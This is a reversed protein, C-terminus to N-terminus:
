FFFVFDLLSKLYPVVFSIEQISGSLYLNLCCCDTWLLRILLTFDYPFFHSFHSLHFLCSVMVTM